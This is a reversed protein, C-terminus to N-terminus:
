LVGYEKLRKEVTKAATKLTKVKALKNALATDKLVERVWVAFDNKEENVHYRFTEKSMTLLADRLDKLNRLIPGNNVWFCSADNVSILKRDRVRKPM